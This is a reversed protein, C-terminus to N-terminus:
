WLGKHTEEVKNIRQNCIDFYTKDIEIGIFDRNLQQCAVGTAGIGMFPDLVVEGENSSNQVLIKMLEVPKETDHLNNGVSDKQKTIPISLIDPTSCNNIPRDGGKRFLLIHEYCGMYYRGCIKNKKDWIVSKVFHFGCDTATNLMEQLNLNNTMLYLICKDKLVRYFEPLYQSPSIDNHSFIKGSLSDDSDWYGGMNGACGRSMIRYPPDTCILDISNDGISNLVKLCDDNYLTVM